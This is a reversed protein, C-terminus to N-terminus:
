YILCGRSKMFVLCTTGGEDGGTGDETGPQKLAPQQQTATQVGSLITQIYSPNGTAPAAPAPASYGINFGAFTYAPNGTGPVGAITILNAMGQTAAGPAGIYGPLLTAAPADIDLSSFSVTANIAGTSEFVGSQGSYTGSIGTANLGLFGSSSLGGPASINGGSAQLLVQGGNQANLTLAHNININGTGGATFTINGGSGTRNTEITGNSATRINGNTTILTISRDDALSLTDGQLDLTISNGAQLVIDATASLRTLYDTTFAGYGTVPDMAGADNAINLNWKAAQYQTLLDRLAPTLDDSYMFVEALDGQYFDYAGYAGAGLRLPSDATALPITRDNGFVGDKYISVLSGDYGIGATLWSNPAYAPSGGITDYGGGYFHGILTSNYLLLDFINGGGNVGYGVVNRSSSLPTNMLVSLYRASNGTVGMNSLTEMWQAGNFRVIGMGNLGNEIYTPRAGGAQVADNGNGSLDEWVSLASGNALGTISSADVWFELLNDLDVSGDTSVYDPAFNGYITIDAPDLLYTGKRGKAATLDVSGSALLNEKGSTEVFGGNGGERGGRGYIHGRFITTDDAWIITRGGNGTVIADNFIYTNGDVTTYTATLTDGQGLYDGGALITGGGAHGSADIIARNLAVADGTIEIHGGAQSEGYGSVDLTGQVLTRSSTGHARLVIRGQADIDAATASILGTNLILNNVIAGAAATEIQVSGGQADIVGSNLLIQETQQDLALELLGDGYLDVTARSGAGMQVRGLRAEIVGHNAAYPAVFAALGMDRVTIHGENVIFGGPNINELYVKADGNMIRRDDIDGTSAIIGGVDVRSGREFIVGNRDLVILRGNARLTGAIKTPDASASTVRNVTLSSSSPQHFETLGDRGINFSEWNIVARDSTQRVHLQAQTGYDFTAQGAAVAGGTPLTTDAQAPASLSTGALMALLLYRAGAFTTGKILNKSHFHM